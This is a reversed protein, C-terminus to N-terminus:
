SCIHAKTQHQVHYFDKKNQQYNLKMYSNQIQGIWVDLLIILHRGVWRCVKRKRAATIDHLLASKYHFLGTLFVCILIFFYLHHMPCLHVKLTHTKVVPNTNNM